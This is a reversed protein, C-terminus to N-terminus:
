SPSGEVHIADDLTLSPPGALDTIVGELCAADCAWLTEGDSAHLAVARGLGTVDCDCWACRRPNAAIDASVLGTRRRRDSSSCSAL